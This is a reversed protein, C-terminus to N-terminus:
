LLVVNLAAWCSTPSLTTSLITTDTTTIRIDHLGKSQVVTGYMLDNKRTKTDGHATLDRRGIGGWGGRSQEILNALAQPHLM